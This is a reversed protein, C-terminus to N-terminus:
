PCDGNVTLEASYEFLLKLIGVKSDMKLSEFGCNHMSNIDTTLSISELTSAQPAVIM